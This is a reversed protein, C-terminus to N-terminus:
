REYISHRPIAESYPREWEKPQVWVRAAVHCLMQKQDSAGLVVALADECVDKVRDVYVSAAVLADEYPRKLVNM